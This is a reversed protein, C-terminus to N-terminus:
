ARNQSSKTNSSWLRWRIARRHQSNCFSPIRAKTWMTMYRPCNRGLRTQSATRALMCSRRHSIQRSITSTTITCCSSIQSGSGSKKKLLTVWWIMMIRRLWRLRQTSRIPRTQRPCSPLTLTMNVRSTTRHTRMCWLMITNMSTLRTLRKKRRRTWCAMREMIHELHSSLGSCQWLRALWVIIM